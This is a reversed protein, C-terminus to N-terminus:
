HYPAPERARASAQRREPPVSGGPDRARLEQNFRPPAALSLGAALASRQRDTLSGITKNESIGFPVLFVHTRRRGWGRQSRLLDEMPMSAAERPPSLLVEGASVQGAGVRRKLAARAVRVNNALELARLCQSGDGM